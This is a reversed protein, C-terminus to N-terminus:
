LPRGSFYAVLTDLTLTGAAPSSITVMLEEDASVSIGSVFPLLTRANFPVQVPPMAQWPGAATRKELTITVNRASAAGSFGLRSLPGKIPGWKLQAGNQASPKGAGTQVFNLGGAGHIVAENKGPGSVLWDRPASQVYTLAEDSRDFTARFVRPLSPKRGECIGAPLGRAALGLAAASECFPSASLGSAEGRAWSWLLSDRFRRAGLQLWAGDVLADSDAVNGRLLEFGLAALSDSTGGVGARTEEVRDVDVRTRVATLLTATVAAEHRDEPTGASRAQERAEALARLSFAPTLRRECLESLFRMGRVRSPGREAVLVADPDCACPGEVGALRYLPARAWFSVTDCIKGEVPAEAVTLSTGSLALPFDSAAVDVRGLLWTGRPPPQLGVDADWRVPLSAGTSTTWTLVPYQQNVRSRVHVFLAFKGNRLAIASTGHGYAADTEFAEVSVPPMATGVLDARLLTTPGLLMKRLQREDMARYLYSAMPAQVLPHTSLWAGHEHMTDPRREDFVHDGLRAPSRTFGLAMTRDTLGAIDLIDLGSRYSTGGVDVDASLLPRQLGLEDGLRRYPPAVLRIREYSLDRAASVAISRAEWGPTVRSVLFLGFLLGAGFVAQAAFPWASKDESTTRLSAVLVGLVSLGLLPGLAPQIFRFERMWDGGSYDAFYIAWRCCLLGAVAAPLTKRSAFALMPLPVVFMWWREDFFTTVYKEGAEPDLNASIKAWYTNPVLDSFYFWRVAVLLITSAAVFGLVTFRPKCVFYAAVAIIGAYVAAEPRCWVLMAAVLGVGIARGRFEPWALLVLAGMQLGALLGGELGAFSWYNFTPWSLALWFPTPALLLWAGRTLRLVLASLSLLALMVFGLNLARSVQVLDLGLSAAPALLLVQLFNSFGEVPAEGPTLRLGRGHGFNDAYAYTIAADDITENLYHARIHQLYVNAVWLTLLACLSIGIARLAVPHRQRWASISNWARHM